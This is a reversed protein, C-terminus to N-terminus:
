ARPAVVCLLLAAGAQCGQSAGVQSSWSEADDGSLEFCDRKLGEPYLRPDRADCCLGLLLGSHEVLLGITGIFWGRLASSSSGHLWRSLRGLQREVALASVFLSGSTKDKLSAM